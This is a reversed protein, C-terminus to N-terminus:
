LSMSKYTYYRECETGKFASLRHWAKNIESVFIQDGAGLSNNTASAAAFSHLRKSPFANSVKPASLLPAQM